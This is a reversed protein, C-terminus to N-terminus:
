HNASTGPARIVRVLRLGAKVLLARYEAETRERGGAAVMINIDALLNERALADNPDIREPLLREIIPLKTSRPRWICPTVRPGFSSPQGRRLCSASATICLISTSAITM